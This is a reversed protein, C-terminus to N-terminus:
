ATMPLANCICRCKTFALIANSAAPQQIWSQATDEANCDMVDLLYDRGISPWAETCRIPPQAVAALDCGYQLSGRTLASKLSSITATGKSSACVRLELLQLQYWHLNYVVPAIHRKLYPAIHGSGLCLLSLYWGERSKMRFPLNISSDICASNSPCSVKQSLVSELRSLLLSVLANNNSPSCTVRINADLFITVSTQM